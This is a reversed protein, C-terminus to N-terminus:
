HLGLHIPGNISLITWTSLVQVLNAGVNQPVWYLPLFALWRHLFHWHTSVTLGAVIQSAQLSTTRCFSLALM